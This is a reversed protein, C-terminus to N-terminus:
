EFAKELEQKLDYIDLGWVPSKDDGAIWDELEYYAEYDYTELMWGVADQVTEIYKEYRWTGDFINNEIDEQIKAKICFENQLKVGYDNIHRIVYLESEKQEAINGLLQLLSTCGNDQLIKIEKTLRDIDKEKTEEYDAFDMDEMMEYLAQALRLNEM